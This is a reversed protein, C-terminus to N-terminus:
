AVALMVMLFGLFLAVFAFPLPPVRSGPSVRLAWTAGRHLGLWYAALAFFVVALVLRVVTVRAGYGAWRRGRLPATKM